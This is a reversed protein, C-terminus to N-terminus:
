NESPRQASEFMFFRVPIKQAELRLGLQEQLATFVSPGSAEDWNLKFDYVGPLGTQDAVPGPGIQSLINALMAISWRRATLTIPQGPVPKMTAGFSTTVEDGTAAQLKSGNKSVLLAFGPMDKMESHFKLKFRDVLLNQLMGLLQQETAQTSDEAKAEITFREAGAIVWDPAGQINGMSRLSYAIGILHSLRGDTIVCRGLPPAAALENPSSYKTDIGHCGGRVGNFGSTSPKLSAVEFELRTGSAPQAPLSSTSLLAVATGGLVSFIKLRKV